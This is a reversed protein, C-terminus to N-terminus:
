PFLWLVIEKILNELLKKQKKKTSEEVDKKM